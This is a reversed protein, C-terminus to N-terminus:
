RQGSSRCFWGRTNCPLGANHRLAVEQKAQLEVKRSVGGEGGTSGLPETLVVMRCAMTLM